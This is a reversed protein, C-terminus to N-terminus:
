SQQGTEGREHNDHQDDLFRWLGLLHGDSSCLRRANPFAPLYVRPTLLLRDNDSEKPPVLTVDHADFALLNPNNEKCRNYYM